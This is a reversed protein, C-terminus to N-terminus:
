TGGVNCVVEMSILAGDICAAECMREVRALPLIFFPRLEAM